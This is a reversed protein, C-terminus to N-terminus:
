YGGNTFKSWEIANKIIQHRWNVQSLISLLFEVKEKQYAVRLTATIIIKDADIYRQIDSKLVKLNFARFEELWGKEKLTEDDLKGSYFEHRLNTLERLDAEMKKLTLKEATYIKHYKHHLQPIRLSESGLNTPNIKTDEEWSEQIDELKM